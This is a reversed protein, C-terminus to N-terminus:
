FSVGKLKIEDNIFSGKSNALYEKETYGLIEMPRSIDIRARGLISLRQWIDKKELDDSIVVLDLDSEKSATGNANSGFLIIKKVSIGLRELNRKYKAITRHIEKDM